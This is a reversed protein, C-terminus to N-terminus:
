PRGRWYAIICDMTYASIALSAVFFLFRPDGSQALLYGKYVSIIAAALSAIFILVSAIKRM